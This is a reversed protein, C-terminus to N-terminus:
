RSVSMIVLHREAHLDPVELKEVSLVSVGEPLSDLEDSPTKGKMALWRTSTGGLHRTLRVFDALSSFARSIITEYEQGPHHTECRAHVPHVNGLSLTRVVHRIFRVKKGASDLLTCDTALSMIALPLGPFGAGTGVDLLRGQGIHPCVSLSDLLHRSVVDELDAASVLNYAGNWKRLLEIFKVLRDLRDDTVPLEMSGLGAQLSERLNGLM